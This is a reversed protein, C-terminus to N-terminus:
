PHLHQSSSVALIVSPLIPLCKQSLSSLSNVVKTHVRRFKIHVWHKTRVLLHKSLVFLLAILFQRLILLVSNVVLFVCNFCSVLVFPLVGNFVPFVVSLVDNFVPFVVLIVDNIILFM